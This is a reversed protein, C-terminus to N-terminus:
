FCHRMLLINLLQCVCLTMIVTFLIWAGMIRWFAFSFKGIPKDTQKNLEDTWLLPFCLFSLQIEWLLLLTLMWKYRYLKSSENAWPWNINHDFHHRCFWFQSFLVFFYFLIFYHFCHRILLLIWWWSVSSIKTSKPEAM